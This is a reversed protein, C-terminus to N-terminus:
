RPVHAAGRVAKGSKAGTHEGDRLVPVGNVLVHEIGVPYQKPKEFTAQDRVTEPDFVVVDAWYGERLSGRDELRMVQAPLSTMKRVADELSLVNERVYKGLVRPNTGYSRPHPVGEGLPGDPRTALADSSIAVWPMKMVTKVDDESMNHYIGFVVGGDEVILDFCTDIPDSDGRIRAIEALTKGEFPKLSPNVVRSAVIGEPGGHEDVYQQFRADAKLKARFGPDKLSEAVKDPPGEIAWAPFLAFWPHMMATYPYQNATVDLGRARAKEILELAPGIKGWLNRGRIKLHSIHVPIRAKEAIELVAQIEDILNYGETGIHSEYYGGYRAVVKAIEIWEEPHQYVRPGEFAACMGVAGDKMAEEVLAKMRSLEDPRAARDEYGMVVQRVQQPAVEAAVNLSVGQRELKRFYGDVDTWDVGEYGFGRKAQYRFEELAAGGLPGVSGSEGLVDLTVGQRVHSQATGDILLALESHTHIDIFGPAVVKGSADIASRGEGPDIRGIRAIRGDRIGLDGQYWPNGSGDVVRGGHIVLDYSPPQPPAVRVAFLLSILPLIPTMLDRWFHQSYRTNRENADQGTFYLSNGDGSV